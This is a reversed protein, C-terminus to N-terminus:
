VKFDQETDMEKRNEKVISVIADLANSLRPDHIDSFGYLSGYAFTEVCGIDDNVTRIGQVEDQPQVMVLKGRRVAVKQGIHNWLVCAGDGIGIIPLNLNVYYDLLTHAWRSVRNCVPITHMPQYGSEHLFAQANIDLGCGDGIIIAEIGM